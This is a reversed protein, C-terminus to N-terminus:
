SRSLDSRWTLLKTQKIHDLLELHGTGYGHLVLLTIDEHWYAHATHIHLYPVSDQSLNRNTVLIACSATM